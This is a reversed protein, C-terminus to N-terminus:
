TTGPEVEPPAWEMEQGEALKQMATFSRPLEITQFPVESEAGALMSAFPWRVATEHGEALKQIARPPASSQSTQFPVEHDAGWGIRVSRGLGSGAKMLQTDHGVALKQVATSESPSASWQFPV